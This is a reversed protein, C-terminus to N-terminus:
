AYTKKGTEKDTEPTILGVQPNNVRKKGKHDYHEIPKKKSNNGKKVNAM